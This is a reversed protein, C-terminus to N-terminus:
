RHSGSNLALIAQGSLRECTLGWKAVDWFSVHQHPPLETLGLGAVEPFDHENYNTREWLSFSAASGKFFEM